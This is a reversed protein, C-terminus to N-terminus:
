AVLETVLLYSSGGCGGEDGNDGGENELQTIFPKPIGRGNSTLCM